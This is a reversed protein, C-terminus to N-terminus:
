VKRSGLNIACSGGVIETISRENEVTQDWSNKEFIKNQNVTITVLSLSKNRLHGVLLDGISAGQVYCMSLYKLCRIREQAQQRLRRRDSYSAPREVRQSEQQHIHKGTTSM